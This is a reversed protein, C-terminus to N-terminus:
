LISGRPRITGYLKVDGEVILSRKSGDIKPLRWLQSGGAAPQAAILLDPATEYGVFSDVKAIAPFSYSNLRQGNDDNLYVFRDAVGIAYNPTVWAQAICETRERKTSVTDSIVCGIRHDAYLSSSGSGYQYFDTQRSMGTAADLLSYQSFRDNDQVYFLVSGSISLARFEQSLTVFRRVGSPPSLSFEHVSLMRAPSASFPTVPGYSVVFAAGSAIGTMQVNLFDDVSLKQLKPTAAPAFYYLACTGNPGTNGCLVVGRDDRALARWTTIRANDDAQPYINEQQEVGGVMKSFVLQIGKIKLAGMALGDTLLGVRFENALHAIPIKNAVPISLVTDGLPDICRSTSNYRVDIEVVTNKQSERVLMVTEDDQKAAYGCTFISGAPTALTQMLQSRGDGRGFLWLLKGGNFVVLDYYRGTTQNAESFREIPLGLDPEPAINAVLLPSSTQGDVPLAILQTSSRAYAYRGAPPGNSQPPATSPDEVGEGSCGALQWVCALICLAHFPKVHSFSSVTHLAVVTEITPLWPHHCNM